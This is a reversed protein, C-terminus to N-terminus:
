FIWKHYSLYQICHVYSVFTTSQLLHLAIQPLNNCLKLLRNATNLAVTGIEATRKVVNHLVNRIHVPQYLYAPCASLESSLRIWILSESSTCAAFNLSQYPIGTGNEM